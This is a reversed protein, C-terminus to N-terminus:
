SYRHVTHVQQWWGVFVGGQSQSCHFVRPLGRGSDIRMEFVGDGVSKTDGLNGFEVRDIRRRIATAAKLDKLTTRWKAFTETQKIVYSMHSYTDFEIRTM